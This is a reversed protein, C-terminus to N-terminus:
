YGYGGVTIRELRGNEFGLYHIFRNPGFNYEWEEVKVLERLILPEMYLQEQSQAPIDKYFDLKIREEVWAEINSPNGCKRLVESQTTGRSIVYQDCRLDTIGCIDAEASVCMLLFVVALIVFKLRLTSKEKIM